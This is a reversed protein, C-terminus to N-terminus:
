KLKVVQDMNNEQLNKLLLKQCIKYIILILTFTLTSKQTLLYNQNNKPLKDLQIMLQNPRVQEQLVQLLLHIVLKYTIILLNKQQSLKKQLFPLNNCKIIKKPISILSKQKKLGNMLNSKIELNTQMIISSQVKKLSNLLAKGNQKGGNHFIKETILVM